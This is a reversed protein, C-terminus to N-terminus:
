NTYYARIKKRMARIANEETKHFSTPLRDFRTSVRFMTRGRPNISWDTPPSLYVDGMYDDALVGERAGYTQVINISRHPLKVPKIM